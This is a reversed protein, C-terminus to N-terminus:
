PRSQRRPVVYVRPRVYRRYDRRLERIDEKNEEIDDTAQQLRRSLDEFTLDLDSIRQELTKYHDDLTQRIAALEATNKTIEQKLEDMQQDIVAQTQLKSLEARSEAETIWIERDAKVQAIKQDIESIEQPDPDAAQSLLQKAKEYLRIAQIFDDPDDKFDWAKSAFLAAFKRCYDLKSMVQTHMTGSAIQRKAYMSVVIPSQNLEELTIQNRDESIVRGMVLSGDRLYFTKIRVTENPQPKEQSVPALAPTEEIPSRTQETQAYLISFLCVLASGAIILSRNTM